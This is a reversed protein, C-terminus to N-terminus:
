PLYSDLSPFIARVFEQALAEAPAQNGQDRRLVPVIVRV